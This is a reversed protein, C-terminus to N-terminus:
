VFGGDSLHRPNKMQLQSDRTLKLETQRLVTNTERLLQTLADGCLLCLRQKLPKIKQLRM